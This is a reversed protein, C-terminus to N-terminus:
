KTEGEETEPSMSNIMVSLVVTSFGIVNMVPMFSLKLITPSGGTIKETAFFSVISLAFFLILGTTLYFMAWGHLGYAALIGANLFIIVWPTMSRTFKLIEIM